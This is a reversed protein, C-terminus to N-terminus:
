WPKKQECCSCFKLWSQECDFASRPVFLAAYEHFRLVLYKRTRRSYRLDDWAIRMHGFETDVDVGADALEIRTTSWMSRGFQIRYILYFVGWLFIVCCAIAVAFTGVLISVAVLGNYISHQASVFFSILFIIALALWVNRAGTRNCIYMISALYDRFMFRYSVSM